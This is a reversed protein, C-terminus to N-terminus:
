WHSVDSIINSLFDGELAEIIVAPQKTIEEIVNELTFSAGVQKVLDFPSSDKSLDLRYLLAGVKREKGECGVKKERIPHAQKAEEKM